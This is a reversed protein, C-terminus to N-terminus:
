TIGAMGSGEDEALIAVAEGGPGEALIAASVREQKGNQERVQKQGLSQGHEWVQEQGLSQRHRDRISRVNLM